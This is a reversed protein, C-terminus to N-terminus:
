PTRDRFLKVRLTLRGSPVTFFLFTERKALIFNPRFTGTYFSKFRLLFPWFQVCVYLATCTHANFTANYRVGYPDPVVRLTTLSGPLRLSVTRSRFSFRLM